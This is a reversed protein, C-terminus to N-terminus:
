GSRLGTLAHLLAVTETDAVGDLCEPRFHMQFARIVTQSWEDHKGTVDIGYGHAKLLTQVAEISVDDIGPAPEPWLGVGEAALTAWPFREGPDVKRGPAVDSHALVHKPQIAHRSFIDHSLAIVADIQCAPFNRYDDGHGPNCIEIGISRSNIDTTGEWSSKGAHWARKDEGVMQVICGDERVMYHCSVEREGSTLIELAFGETPVGTYHMLLMDPGDVGIRENFCAAAIFAHPLSTRTM